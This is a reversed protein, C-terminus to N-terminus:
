LILITHFSINTHRKSKLCKKCSGIKNKINNSYPTYCPCSHSSFHRPSFGPLNQPHQLSFFMETYETKLSMSRATTLSTAPICQCGEAGPLDKVFFPHYIPNRLLSIEEEGTHKVFSYALIKVLHYYKLSFFMVKFLLIKAGGKM